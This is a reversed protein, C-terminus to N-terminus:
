RVSRVGCHPCTFTNYLKNVYYEKKCAYCLVKEQELVKDTIMNHGTSPAPKTYHSTYSDVRDNVEDIGKELIWEEIGKDIAIVNDYMSFIKNKITSASPNVITLRLKKKNLVDMIVSLIDMDELKHGIVILEDIQNLTTTFIGHLTNFPYNYIDDKEAPYIMLNNFGQIGTLSPDLSFIKKRSDDSWWNISGHLKILNLSHRFFNESNFVKHYGHENEHKFGDSYDVKLLKCVEEVVMDYNTSFIILNTKNKLELISNYTKGAEDINKINQCKNRIFRFIKNEIKKYEDSIQKALELSNPDFDFLKLAPNSEFIKIKQIASILAEIDQIKNNRKLKDLNKDNSESLFQDVMESTTPINFPVSAGAGLLFAITM